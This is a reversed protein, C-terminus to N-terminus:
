VYSKPCDGPLRGNLNRLCIVSLFLVEHSKLQRHMGLKDEESVNEVDSLPDSIVEIPLRKNLRQAATSGLILAERRQLCREIEEFEKHQPSM